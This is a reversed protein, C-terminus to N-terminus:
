FPLRQVHRHPIVQLVYISTLLGVTPLVPYPAYDLQICAKLIRSGAQERCGALSRASQGVGEGHVAWSVSRKKYQGKDLIKTVSIPCNGFCM